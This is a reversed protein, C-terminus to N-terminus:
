RWDELNELSKRMRDAIQKPKNHYKLLEIIEIYERQRKEQFSLVFINPVALFM